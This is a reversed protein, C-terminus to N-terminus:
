TPSAQPTARLPRALALVVVAALLAVVLVYGTGPPKGNSNDAALAIVAWVAVAGLAALLDRMDVPVPPTARVTLAVAVALAGLVVLTAWWGSIGVIASAPYSLDRERLRLLWEGDYAALPNTVTMVAMPIASVLALAVTTLPFRAYAVALGVAAFPVTYITYRPLGLGGFISFQITSNYLLHVLPIALMIAAEARWRSGRRLLLAAGVIGCALVPTNTLLGWASVLLDALSRPSPWSTGYFGGLPEVSNNEYSV